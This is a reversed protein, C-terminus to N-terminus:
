DLVYSLCLNGFFTYHTQLTFIQNPMIVASSLIGQEGVENYDISLMTKFDVNGMTCLGDNQCTQYTITGEVKSSAKLVKVKQTFSGKGEAVSTNGGWVEEYFDHFGVPKPKGVLQYTDNPKFTFETPQPGEVKFQTSYLHWTPDIIANFKIEVVEGIKAEKRPAEFTWQAHNQIQSFASFTLLLLVASVLSKM